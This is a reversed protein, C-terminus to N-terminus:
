PCMLKIGEVPLLIYLPDSPDVVDLDVVYSFTAPNYLAVGASRGNITFGGGTIAPTITGSNGRRYSWTRTVSDWDWWCIVYEVTYEIKMSTLSFYGGSLVIHITGVVGMPNGPSAQAPDRLYSSGLLGQAQANTEVAVQIAFITLLLILIKKM